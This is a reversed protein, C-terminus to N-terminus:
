RALDFMERAEKRLSVRNGFGGPVVRTTIQDFTESPYDYAVNFFAVALQLPLLRLTPSKGTM